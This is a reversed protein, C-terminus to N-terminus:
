EGGYMEACVIIPFLLATGAQCARNGMIAPSNTRYHKGKRKVDFAKPSYSGTNQTHEDKLPAVPKGDYHCVASKMICTFGLLLTDRPCLVYIGCCWSCNVPQYQEKMVGIPREETRSPTTTAKRM